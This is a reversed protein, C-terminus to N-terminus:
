KKLRQNKLKRLWDGSPGKEDFMEVTILKGKKCVPCTKICSAKEPVEVTVEGTQDRAVPLKEKKSSSSLIGYHRIRVFGKLLIHLAFRRIFEKQPLSCIGKKGGKRYGKV